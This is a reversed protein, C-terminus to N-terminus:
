LVVIGWHNFPHGERTSDRWIGDFTLVPLRDKGKSPCFLHVYKRTAGVVTVWHGGFVDIPCIVPRKRKLHYVLDDLDFTGSQLKLGFRRLLAYVTSPHMGDSDNALDVSGPPVELGKFALAGLVVAEGCNHEANQRAGPYERIM